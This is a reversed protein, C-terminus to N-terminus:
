CQEREERNDTIRTALRWEAAPVRLGFTFRFHIKLPLGAATRDDGMVHHSLRPMFTDGDAQGPGTLSGLRALQGRIM